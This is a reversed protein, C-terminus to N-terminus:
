TYPYHQAFYNFFKWCTFYPLALLNTKNLGLRNIWSTYNFNFELDIESLNNRNFEYLNSRSFLFVINYVMKSYFDDNMSFFVLILFIILCIVRHKSMNLVRSVCFTMM